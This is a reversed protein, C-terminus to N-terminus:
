FVLLFILFVYLPLIENSLVLACLLSVSLMLVVANLAILTMIFIEFPKSDVIVWVKYFITNKDEPMYRQRPKANM